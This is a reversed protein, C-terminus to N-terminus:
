LYNQNYIYKKKTLFPRCFFHQEWLARFLKLTAQVGQMLTKGPITSGPQISIAQKHSFFNREQFPTQPSMGCSGQLDSLSLPEEGGELYSTWYM